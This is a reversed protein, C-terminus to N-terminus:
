DQLEDFYVTSRVVKGRILNLNLDKIWDDRRKLLTTNDETDKFRTKMVLLDVILKKNKNFTQGIKLQNTNFSEMYKRELDEREKDMLMDDIALDTGM